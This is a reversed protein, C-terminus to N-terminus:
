SNISKVIPTGVDEQYKREIIHISKKTPEHGYEYIEKYVRILKTLRFNLDDMDFTNIDFSDADSWQSMKDFKNGRKKNMIKTFETLGSVGGVDEVIGFGSGEIVKPLSALSVEKMECKELRLKVHWNDGYDYNFNLELGIRDKISTLTIMDADILQENPETWREEGFDLEYRMNPCLENIDHENFFEELEDETYTKLLIKKFNKQNDQTFCFLHSAKMEFLIMLTYGLQAMSKKGSIEFRRWITPQFNELKAYFTYVYHQAM